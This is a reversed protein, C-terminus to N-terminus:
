GGQTMVIQIDGESLAEDYIRVDDIVGHMFKSQDPNVGIAAGVFPNTDILGTRALSGVLVGDKYLKMSSGDYTAAVHTWVGTQLDDSTAILTSTNGNTKLRFRLRVGGSQAITSLMWYHDQESTATAKSLIRCDSVACSSPSFDDWRVWAAFTVEHQPVIDIETGLDVFDNVGNFSVASGYKGSVWSGGSLAGDYGNGSADTTTSGSGEDIPWYALFNASIPLQPNPANAWGMITMNDFSVRDGSKMGNSNNTIFRIKTDSSKYPTLDYYLGNHLGLDNGGGAYSQIHRWNGAQYVQFDVRDSGNDLNERRHNFFAYVHSLNSLDGLDRSWWGYNNNNTDKQLKLWGSETIDAEFASTYPGKDSDFVWCSPWSTFEQNCRDQNEFDDWLTIHSYQHSPYFGEWIKMALTKQGHRSPHFCDLLSIDAPQILSDFPANTFHITVGDIGNWESAKSAMLNNLDINFQRSENLEEATASSDLIRGCPQNAGSKIIWQDVFKQIQKEVYDGPIIDCVEGAEWKCISDEANATLKDTDLNWLAQCVTFMYQGGKRNIMLDRFAVADVVGVWYIEPSPRNALATTLHGLTDDIHSAIIELDGVYSEGLNKCVNNNGLNIYVTAVDSDATIAQAQVLADKWEEGDDALTIIRDQSFGLRSAISWTHIGSAHSWNWDHRGLANSLCDPLETGYGCADNTHTASSISDGIVGFKRTTSTENLLVPAKDQANGDLDGLVMGEPPIAHLQEGNTDKRRVSVDSDPWFEILAKSSPILDFHPSIQSQKTM